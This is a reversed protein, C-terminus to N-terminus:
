LKKISRAKQTAADDDYVRGGGRVRSPPLLALRGDFTPRSEMLVSEVFAAFNILNVSANSGNVPGNILFRDSVAVGPEDMLVM